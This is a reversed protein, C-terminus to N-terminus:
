GAVPDDQAVCLGAVARLPWPGLLDDPGLGAFGLGALRKIVEPALVASGGQEAYSSDLDVRSRGLATALATALARDRHEVDRRGSGDRVDLAAPRSASLAVSASGEPEPLEACWVFEHPCMVDVQGHLSSRVRASVEAQGGPDGVLYAVLVRGRGPREVVGVRAAEVGEVSCAIRALKATNVWSRDVHAWDEGYRAVPLAFREVVESVTASALGPDGAWAILFREMGVLMRDVQEEDIVSRHGILDLVVDGNLSFTRLCLDTYDDRWLCELRKFSSDPLDDPAGGPADAERLAEDFGDACNFLAGVRIPAGRRLEVRMKADRLGFYSYQAHRAGEFMQKRSEQLLEQVTAGPLPRVAVLAEQFFCGVSGMVERFRNSFNMKFGTDSNGSLASLAIVFAVSLRSSAAPDLPGSTDRLAAFLRPSHLSVRRYRDGEDPGVSSRFRPFQAVPVSLLFRECHELARRHAADHEGSRQRAALAAPQAGVRQEGEPAPDGQPFSRLAAELDSQITPFSAGDASLHNIMLVLTGVSGGELAFGLRLPLDVAQDMRLAFLEHFIAEVDEPSNGDRRVSRPDEFDELVVQFPRGSWDVPYITRLAEHRTMLERVAKLVRTESFGPGPMRFILEIKASDIDPLPLHCLYWYMEQSWLLPAGRGKGLVAPLGEMDDSGQRDVM